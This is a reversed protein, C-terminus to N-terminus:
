LRALARNAQRLLDIQRLRYRVYTRALEANGPEQALATEIETIAREITALNEFVKRRTEPPLGDQRAELREELELLIASLAADTEAYASPMSSETGTAVLVAEPRERDGPRLLALLGVALLLSAALALPWRGRAPFLGRRPTSGALRVEIAPWLDRAPELSAPLSQIGAVVRQYSALERALEPDERSAALLALWGEQDLEGRLWAALLERGRDESHSM